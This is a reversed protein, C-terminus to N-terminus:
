SFRQLVDEDCLDNSIDSEIHIISLNTCKELGMSNKIIKMASFSYEATATM